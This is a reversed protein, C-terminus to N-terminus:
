PSEDEHSGRKRQGRGMDKPGITDGQPGEETRLEEATDLM